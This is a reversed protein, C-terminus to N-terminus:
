RYSIKQFVFMEVDKKSSQLFHSFKFIARRGKKPGTTTFNRPGVKVAGEEDRFNKKEHKDAPLHEFDAKVARNITKAPKFANDSVAKYGDKKAERM